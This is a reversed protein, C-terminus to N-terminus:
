KLLFYSVQSYSRKRLGPDTSIGKVKLERLFPAKPPPTNFNLATGAVTRLTTPSLPLRPQRIPTHVQSNQQAPSQPQNQAYLLSSPRPRPPVAQSLARRRASLFPGPLAVALFYINTLPVTLVAILLTSPFFSRAHPSPFCARLHIRQFTLNM